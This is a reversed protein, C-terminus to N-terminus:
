TMKIQTFQGNLVIEDLGYYKIEIDHGSISIIQKDLTCEFLHENLTMVDQYHKIIIKDKDIYLMDDGQIIYSFVAENM